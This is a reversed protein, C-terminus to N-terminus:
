EVQMFGHIRALFQRVVLQLTQADPLEVHAGHRMALMQTVVTAAPENLEPLMAMGGTSKSHVEGHALWRITRCLNLIVYDPTAHVQTESAAIDYWVAALAQHPLPLPVRADGHVMIGHHHAIVMHASLDPDTRIVDWRHTPDIVAAHTADRWSESYHFFFPAPHEWHALLTADLVSIEIPAPATSIRLLATALQHYQATTPAGDCFVLVDLDSRGPHYDGLAVSGHVLVVIADGLIARMADTLLVVQAHIHDPLVRM